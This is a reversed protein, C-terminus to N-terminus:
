DWSQLEILNGEPDAAYVFTIRGVGELDRVVIEGALTGGAELLREVCYPVSEVEFALHGYGERNAKRPPAELIEGYQYIELTPGDEGYGPLILHVGQLSARAVGTGRSLWPGRQDRPPPKPFCQFVSEYFHALRQWDRAVINTHAYRM